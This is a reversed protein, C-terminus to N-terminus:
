VNVSDLVPRRNILEAQVSRAVRATAYADIAASVGGGLVPMRRLALGALDKTGLSAIVQSLARGAVAQTLVQDHVPATAVVLPTGPLDGAEIAQRRQKPSLLCMVLATRVRPDDIDYGHLHAICAALRIQVVIVAAVNAPVGVLSVLGGGLNTLFGQASALSVHLRTLSDIAPGIQQRHQFYRAAVQKASPLGPWGDVAADILKLLWASFTDPALQPLGIM